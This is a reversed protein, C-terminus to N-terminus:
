LVPDVELPKFKTGLLLNRKSVCQYPIFNVSKNAEGSLMVM